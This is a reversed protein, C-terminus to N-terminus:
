TIDECTNNDDVHKSTSTTSTKKHTNSNKHRKTTSTKTNSGGITTTTAAIPQKSRDISIRSIKNATPPPIFPFQHAEFRATFYCFSLPFPPPDFLFRLFTQSFSLVLGGLFLFGWWLENESEGKNVGKLVSAWSRGAWFNLPPSSPKPGLPAIKNSNTKSKKLPPMQPQQPPPPSLPLPPPPKRANKLIDAYSKYSSAM